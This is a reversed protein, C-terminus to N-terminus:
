APQAACPRVGAICSPSVRTETTVRVVHLRRREVIAQPTADVERLALADDQHAGLRHWPTAVPRQNGVREEGSANGYIFDGARDTRPRMDQRGPSADLARMDGIRDRRLRADLDVRGEVTDRAVPGASPEARLM